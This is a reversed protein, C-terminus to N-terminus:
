CKSEYNIIIVKDVDGSEVMKKFGPYTTKSTSPGLELLSLSILIVAIIAYIWYFNLPNKPGKPSKPFKGKMKTNSQKKSDNTSM